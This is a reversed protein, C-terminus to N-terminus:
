KKKAAVAANFQKVLENHQARSCCLNFQIVNPLVTQKVTTTGSGSYGSYGNFTTINQLM